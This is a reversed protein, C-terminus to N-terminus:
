RADELRIVNGGEPAAFMAKGRILHNRKETDLELGLYRETQAGTAHHLMAQVIRLAGDYNKTENLEDFLARAGSRRLTHVGEYLSRGTEDKTAYGARRMVVKVLQAPYHIPKEPVLSGPDVSVLTRQPAGKVGVFKQPITSPVLYDAKDLSRPVNEAYFTLWRRLEADLEACIPMEDQKGTKPQFVRISDDNLNLDAIRLPKIESARVFLYLGLAIVIRHRPTHAADLLMGFKEPPIRLRVKTPVKPRRSTALLDDFYTIYKRARMWGIFNKMRAFHAACTSQQLGRGALYQMFAEGHRTDLSKTQINGVATLFYTLTQRDGGITSKSRLGDRSSIYEEIADSLLKTAV